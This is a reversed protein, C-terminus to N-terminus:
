QEGGKKPPSPNKMDPQVEPAETNLFLPRKKMKFIPWRVLVDEQNEIIFPAMPALYPVGFSRLSVVHAIIACLGLLVGFLGLVGALITLLFRLLRTSNAFSYIPSVFSAIATIAVVIVMMNSVFGAEVAAQGLVLAGVISVTQGVARPMRTGAERLLEFTFDMLLLEVIAPFPVTERQAAISVLLPTPILEHHYTILSLWGAPFLLAVIFSAYRILRVLSSMLFPQFYDESVTFFNTMVVPVLLVFPSGDVVMAIKGAILDGAVSDPRETNYVLPFPTITKDGILEEINGSDFIANIKIGSIRNRVEQVIKKNAVGEIYGIVVSTRTDKGIYYAEFRLNPNKIRRRILSINTGISETFSDKPGRIITQTSSETISRTEIGEIQIALAQPIGEVVLVAYGSLIHWVAEHNFETLKYVLGSFVDKRLDDLERKNSVSRNRLTVMSLPQVIKQSILKRDTMSQLYCIIGEQSGISIRDLQLDMTKGFVHELMSRNIELNRSLVDNGDPILEPNTTENPSTYKSKPSFLKRLRSM